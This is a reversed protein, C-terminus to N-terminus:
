KDRDRDPAIERVPNQPKRPSRCLIPAVSTLHVFDGRESGVALKVRLAGPLGGSVSSDWEAQWNKGDFYAFEIEDLNELIPRWGEDRDEDQQGYPEERTLLTHRSSDLKYSVLRLSGLHSERGSGSDATVLQLLVDDLPTGGGRFLSVREDQTASKVPKQGPVTRSSRQGGGPYCCRAQRSLRQVFQRSKQDAEVRIPIERISDTIARYSGYLASMIVGLVSLAVLIELLTFGCPRRQGCGSADPWEQRLCDSAPAAVAPRRPATSVM